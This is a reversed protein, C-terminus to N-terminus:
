VPIKEAILKRLLAAKAKVKHDTESASDPHLVMLELIGELYPNLFGGLNEVVVELVGLIPLFISTRGSSVGDRARELIQKMCFPLVSLMKSGLVSILAGTSQLCTSSLTLNDSTIHKAVVVLCSTSIYDSTPFAKALVELSSVAALRVPGPSNDNPEDVLQVIKSCLECFSETSSEDIFIYPKTFSKKAEKAIRNKESVM